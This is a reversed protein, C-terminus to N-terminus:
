LLAALFAAIRDAGNEAAPKPRDGACVAALRMLWEGNQYSKQTIATGGLRKVVFSQLPESEAFGDRSISIVRAGAQCCEAVTSYGAKCVVVDSAAVLDPHYLDSCRDLLIINDREHSYEEQGSFVFLYDTMDAAKSCLQQRDVVGGMTVLVLKREDGGGLKKRIDRGTGRMRRFVPGCVLAGPARHCVPEAQIRFAARAFIEQLQQAYRALRPYSVTYPRYIWDWTFNEVLVSPIDLSEAVTIGLPAIDCLVLSCRSCLLALTDVTARSFPIFEELKEITAPIDSVLASRQVLGIDTLQPHYIFGTLTQSFLSEPVSTFIHVLLDPELDKLSELVAITRTAHGFGHPSIFCAIEKM